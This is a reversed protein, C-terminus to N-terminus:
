GSACRHVVAGDDLVLGLAEPAQTSVDQALKVVSYEVGEVVVAVDV